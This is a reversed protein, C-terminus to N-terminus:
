NESRQLVELVNSNRTYYIRVRDTNPETYNFPIPQWNLEDVFVDSDTPPFLSALVLQM